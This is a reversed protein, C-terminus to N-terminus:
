ARRQIERNARRKQKSHLCGDMGLAAASPFIAGIKTHNNVKELVVIRRSAALLAAPDPLPLRGLAALAGRHVHFGTVQELLQPTGVLAPAGTSRYSDEIVPAMLPLWKDSLLLSRVPYGAKIARRIVKDGEAIFMGLEPETRKRLELDTLHLYDHLRPDQPDDIRLVGPLEAPDPTASPQARNPESM